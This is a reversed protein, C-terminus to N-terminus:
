DLGMKGKVHALVEAMPGAPSFEVYTTDETFRVVHGPPWYYLDGAKVTETSGDQYSVEIEGQLVYGWHPCQCHDHPLGALVPALDSGKALTLKGAIMDGYTAGRVCVGEVDIAAPLMDAARRM